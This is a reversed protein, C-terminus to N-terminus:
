ALKSIEIEDDVIATVSVSHYRGGELDEPRTEAGSPNVYYFVPFRIEALRSVKDSEEEVFDTTVPRAWGGRGTSRMPKVEPSTEESELLSRSRSIPPM